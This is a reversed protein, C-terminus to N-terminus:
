LRRNSLYISRGETEFQDNYILMDKYQVVENPEIILRKKQKKKKKQFWNVFELDGFRPYERHSGGIRPLSNKKKIDVDSVM